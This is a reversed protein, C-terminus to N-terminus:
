AFNNVRQEVTKITEAEDPNQNLKKFIQRVILIKTNSKIRGTYNDCNQKNRSYFKPDLNTDFEFNLPINSM